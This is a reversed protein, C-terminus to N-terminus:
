ATMIVRLADLHLRVRSLQGSLLERRTELLDIEEPRVGPNVRALARLRDIEAGLEAQMRERARAELATAIKAALREGRAMLAELVARRSEIVAAALKPKRRLCQGQLREHPFEGALDRGEADLLLRLATPPLYRGIDLETPAPCQAIRVMELLLSGAPLDPVRLVTVACSGLDSGTMMDMAGRVMPHEWTLFERDEHALAVARDFTVTLGDEPLGPFHEHLMHTGPQLVTTAGPGPENEVGFGDWVRTLYDRLDASADQREIAEVLAASAGPRNSHLELLRDRGSALQAAIREREARALAILADAAAPDRLAARLRVRLREYVASAAPSVSSFAELGEQYWRYLTEGATGVLYPIHIRVTETQGIRDLRGIRQELLDPELPLDFLVLHRAFQFNRGESGIESCLLVQAGEDPDAFYAAARDREVIEMGEHFVAAHIGERERLVRRLDLATGAHACIVVVKEPRLGRLIGALWAVRPDQATWGDGFLVEPTIGDDPGERLDLYAAPAPLPHPIPERVPFGKVAARTNRFLVRGTGHRDLLADILRDPPLAGLGDPLAARVAEDEATLPEGDLLRAALRAIPEYDAEEALFARYDCWRHPDLLHLRGFHGARGLQEPTATLLLCAPTQEALAAVLDYGLSGGEESWTLHHAEDVIMLDWDGELAARAAAPLSTLLELSCLVRQETLFPNGGASQAVRDRDFLAFRLNFRRLMEVLWQHLLPEPVLILARSVRGKLLLRHLVLGAEITKGLGVEDALLARPAFRGSLEAAIYLQHPIPSVRPGVLGFINSGALEMGKRWTRLRLSFWEDGDLRVAYLRQRPQNVRLTPDLRAEPVDVPGGSLDECLYTLVGDRERAGSVVLELGDLDRVLEGPQLTV